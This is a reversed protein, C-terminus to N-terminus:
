CTEWRPRDLNQAGLFGEKVMEFCPCRGGLVAMNEHVRPDTTGRPPNPTFDSSHESPFDANGGLQIGKLTRWPVFLVDGNDFRTNFGDFLGVLLRWRAASSTICSPRHVFSLTVLHGLVTM